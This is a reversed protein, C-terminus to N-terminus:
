GPVAEIRGVTTMRWNHLEVETFAALSRREEASWVDLRALVAAAATEAARSAGDDCKLAFGIGAHPVAGCFVGEAGTKVLARPVATMLKTCFRDSGAVMFPHHRMATVIRRAAKVAPM